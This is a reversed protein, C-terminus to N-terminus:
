VYLVPGVATLRLQGVEDQETAVVMTQQVFAPVPGLARRVSDDEAAWVAPEHWADAVYTAAVACAYDLAVPPEAEVDARLCGDGLRTALSDVVVDGDSPQQGELAKDVAAVEDVEWRPLV